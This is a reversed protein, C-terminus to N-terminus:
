TFLPVGPLLNWAFTSTSNHEEISSGFVVVDDLYILCIRWQLGQLALEMLRQFTAPACSLGFPMSLFEYLGYKTVFATKPITSEEMLVQHYGPTLDFTSFYWAGAVADLCDHVRPLPFADQNIVANLKRYDVCPRIMGNKKVVLCLPSAWSSKSKRIIGNEKM